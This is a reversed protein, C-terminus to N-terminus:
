CLPLATGQNPISTPEIGVHGVLRSPCAVAPHFTDVKLFNAVPTPFSHSCPEHGQVLSSVVTILGALWVTGPLEGAIPVPQHLWSGTLNWRTIALCVFLSIRTPLNYCLVPDRSRDDLNFMRTYYIPRIVNRQWRLSTLEIRVIRESAGDERSKPRYPGTELVLPVIFM